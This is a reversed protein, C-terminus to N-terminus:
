VGYAYYYYTTSVFVPNSATITVTCTTGSTSLSVCNSGSQGNYAEMFGSGSPSAFAIMLYYSNTLHYVIVISPTFALGSLKVVKNSYVTATGSAKKLSAAYTGTIGFISVGKVINTAKLNTDGKITQAGALYQKASITQNVTTPTYTAAAKSAINGTVKEGKVYATAGNLMDAATATADSTDVGTTIAEVASEFGDPFSLAESTGGKERIADALSTLSKEEVSYKAM